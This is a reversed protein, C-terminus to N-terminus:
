PILTYIPQNSTNLYWFVFQNNQNKEITNTYNKSQIASILTLNKSVLLKVFLFRCGAGFKNINCGSGFTNSYCSSGFTNNNCNSGFTNYYCSLNFTNYYCGSGFTNNYCTSGFTNSSCNSGFTNYYCNLGFTNFGCSSGFTNSYCGSGFTNSNCNSGFTNYRCSSGFINNYCGSNFTNIGCSSGFTNSYCTSGFTNSSCNSGFTNNYFGDNASINSIPNNGDAGWFVTNLLQRKFYNSFYEGLITINNVSLTYDGNINSFTYYEKKQSIDAVLGYSSNFLFYNSSFNEVVMCSFYNGDFSNTPIGTRTSKFIDDQVIYYTDKVVSEGTVWTHISSTDVKFRAWKIHRWDNPVNVENKVWYRRLIFGNRQTSNDECKNDDFDYYIIDDPYKNSYCEVAFENNSTATLLLTETEKDIQQQTVTSLDYQGLKMTNSYPQRYKTVYDTLLYCQGTILQSNNKLVSLEAYTKSIAKSLSDELRTKFDNTFNNDTAVKDIPYLGQGAVKDVKTSLNSNVIDNDALGSDIGKAKFVPNTVDTLTKNAKSNILTTIATDNYNELNDLKTKLTNTFNNDTIAKTTPYLGQGAVKDVKLDLATQSATSIPKALDSTNDVNSLGVQSKTVEHPNVKDEIHDILDQATALDNLSKGSDIIGGDSSIKTLNDSMGAIKLEDLNLTTIAIFQTGDYRLLYNTKQKLEKSQLDIIGGDNNYRKIYKVGFSNINITVPNINETDLSLIILMNNEYAQLEPVTATYEDITTSTNLIGNVLTISSSKQLQAIASDVDQFSKDIIMFGSTQASSAIATRFARFAVLGDGSDAIPLNKYPTYKLPM